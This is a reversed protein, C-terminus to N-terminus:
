EISNNHREITNRKVWWGSQRPHNRWMRDPAINQLAPTPAYMGEFSRVDLGMTGTEPQYAARARREWMQSELRPQASTLRQFTEHDMAHTPNSAAEVRFDRREAGRRIHHRAHNHLRGPITSTHNVTTSASGADEAGHRERRPDARLSSASIDTSAYRAANCDRIWASSVHDSIMTSPSSPKFIQQEASHRTTASQCPSRVEAAEPQNNNLSLRELDSTLDAIKWNGGWPRFPYGAIPRAPLTESLAVPCQRWQQPLLRGAQSSLLSDSVASVTDGSNDPGLGLMDGDLQGAGGRLSSHEDRNNLTTSINAQSRSVSTSSPKLGEVNWTESM